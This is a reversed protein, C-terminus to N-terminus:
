IEEQLVQCHNWLRHNVKTISKSSFLISHTTFFDHKNFPKWVSDERLQTGSHCFM